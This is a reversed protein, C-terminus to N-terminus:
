RPTTLACPCRCSGPKPASESRAPEEKPKPAYPDTPTTSGDDGEGEDIADFGPKKSKKNGIGLDELEDLTTTRKHNQQQQQAQYAARASPPIPSVSPTYEAMPSIFGSSDESFGQDVAAFAPARLTADNDTSAAGNWGWENQQQQQGPQQPQSEYASNGYRSFDGGASRPLSEAEFSRTPVSSQWPPPATPDYNYGAVGLSSSRSHHTKFPARKVPPPGAAAAPPAASLQSSSTSGAAASTPRSPPALSGNLLDATSQARSLTGSTSGPSISSYHSFPGIPGGNATKAVEAKAALAKASPEGEGSVFKTFGGELTSWLTEKTPGRPVMRTIWSGAKDSGGAATLRDSLAKVQAVLIPTYYPSPKTTLKLTNAIAETYRHSLGFDTLSCSSEAPSSSM